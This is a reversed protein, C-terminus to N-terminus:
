VAGAAIAACDTMYCCLDRSVGCNTTMITTTL